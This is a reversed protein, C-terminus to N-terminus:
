SLERLSSVESTGTDNVFSEWVYFSVFFFLRIPKKICGRMSLYRGLFSDVYGLQMKEPCVNEGSENM